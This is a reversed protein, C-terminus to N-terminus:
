RKNKTEEELAKNVLEDLLKLVNEKLKDRIEKSNLNGAKKLIKGLMIIDEALYEDAYKFCLRPFFTPLEEEEFSDMYKHNKESM